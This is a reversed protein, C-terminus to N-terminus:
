RTMRDGRIGVVAVEQGAVVEVRHHDCGGVDGMRRQEVVDQSGVEGDHDFLRHAGRDVVATADL